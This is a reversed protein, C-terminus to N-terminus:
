QGVDKQSDIIGSLGSKSGRFTFTGTRVERIIRTDIEDLKPKNCGVDAL